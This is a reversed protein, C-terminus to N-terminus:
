SNRRPPRRASICVFVILLLALIAFVTDGLKAYPPSPGSRPLPSDLADRANLQLLGVIRGRSDIIGSVGNNAARVVPIGQEVARVRAQHFHQFPGTSIGYWADNTINFLVGPRKDTLSVEEPFIVEYCILMEVKPLGPVPLLPRPRQGVAFGGRLRTLQELGIAELTKQFPLYEGFPVLHTKDYTSILRGSGDMVMASNFVKIAERPGGIQGEARLIGAIVFLHDPLVQSISEAVGPTRLALFPLAAEPWVVHTIASLHHGGRKPGSETLALHQEFISRRKEVLFKHSQPVSPQVIRLIVDPVYGPDPKALVHMGYVTICALPAITLVMITRFSRQRDSPTAALAALPTCTVIVVILTLGYIGFVGAAQMFILPFTLAYGLVNWPFGTLINGRLWETTALAVAFVSVRIIVPGSVSALLAIALSHFLALGAPMLTVAIPLLWAFVDSQVLFAGGIWYLGALHFGFAFWWGTVFGRKLNAFTPAFAISSPTGAGPEPRGPDSSWLVPPLTLFLIPTFYFPAFALASLAGAAGLIAYHSWGRVSRFRCALKQLASVTM